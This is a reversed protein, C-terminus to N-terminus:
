EKKGEYEGEEEEWVWVRNPKCELGAGGIGPAESLGDRGGENEVYRHFVGARGMEDTM